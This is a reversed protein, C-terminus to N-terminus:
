LALFKSLRNHQSRYASEKVRLKQEMREIFQRRRAAEQQEYEDVQQGFGQLSVM